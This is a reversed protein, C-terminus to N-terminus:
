GSGELTKGALALWLPLRAFFEDAPVQDKELALVQRFASDASLTSSYQKLGIMSVTGMLMEPPPLPRVSGTSSTNPSGPRIAM